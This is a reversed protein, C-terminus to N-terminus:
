YGAAWVNVHDTTGLAITPGTYTLVATVTNVTGGSVSSISTARGTVTTPSANACAIAGGAVLTSLGTVVAALGNTSATDTCSLKLGAKGLAKPLNAVIPSLTVAM